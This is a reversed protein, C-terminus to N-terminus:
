PVPLFFGRSTPAIISWDGGKIYEKVKTWLYYLILLIFSQGWM